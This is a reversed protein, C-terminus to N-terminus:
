NLAEFPQSCDKKFLCLMTKRVSVPSLPSTFTVITDSHFDFNDDLIESKRKLINMIQTRGVGMEEAVARCSKGGDCLNIAKVKDDLNLSSAPIPKL